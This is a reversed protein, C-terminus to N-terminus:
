RKRAPKWQRILQAMEAPSVVTCTDDLGQTFERILQPNVSWGDVYVLAFPIDTLERVQRAIDKANNSGLRFWESVFATQGSVGIFRPAAVLWLADFNARAYAEVFRLRQAPPRSGDDLVSISHIDAQECVQRTLEVFKGLNEPSMSGPHVYAYGSPGAVFEDWGGRQAAEDYYIQLIVPALEMWQPSITWVLPVKPWDPQNWNRRMNNVDYQMNDGDSVLLLVYRHHPQLKIDRSTRRTQLLNPTRPHVQAFFSLDDTFDDAVLLKNQRSLRSVLADEVTVPNQGKAAIAYNGSAWGYVCTQAPFNTLVEDLLEIEQPDNLPDLNIVFMKRQMAFDRFSSLGEDLYVLEHGDCQPLLETLAWRYAEVKNTWQNHCDFITPRGLDHDALIAHHIGALTTALNITWPKAPDYIVQPADKGFRELAQNPSLQEFTKGLRLEMTKLWSLNDDSRIVFFVPVNENALAQLSALRFRWKLALKRADVYYIQGETQVGNVGSMDNHIINTDDGRCILSFNFGGSLVLALCLILKSKM